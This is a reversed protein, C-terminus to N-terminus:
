NGSQTLLFTINKLTNIYTSLIDIEKDSGAVWIAPGNIVYLTNNFEDSDHYHGNRSEPYPLFFSHTKKKM